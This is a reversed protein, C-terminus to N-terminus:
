SQLDKLSCMGVLKIHTIQLSMSAIDKVWKIALNSKIILPIITSRAEKM